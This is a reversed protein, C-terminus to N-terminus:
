CEVEYIIRDPLMAHLRCYPFKRTTRGDAAPFGGINANDNNYSCLAANTRKAVEVLKAGSQIPITLYNRGDIREVYGAQTKM